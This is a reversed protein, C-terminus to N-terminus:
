LEVIFNVFSPLHADTIIVAMEYFLGATLVMLFWFLINLNRTAKVLQQDTNNTPKM